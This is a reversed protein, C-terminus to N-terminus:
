RAERMCAYVIAFLILGLFSLMSLFEDHSIGNLIISWLLLFIALIEFVLFLMAMFLDASIKDTKLKISKFKKLVLLTSFGFALMIALLVITSFYLKSYYVIHETM